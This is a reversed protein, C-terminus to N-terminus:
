GLQLYNLVEALLGGVCVVCVCSCFSRVSIHRQSCLTSSSRDTPITSSLCVFCVLTSSCSSLFWGTECLFLRPTVKLVDHNEESISPGGAAPPWFRPSRLCVRVCSTFWRGRVKKEPLDRCFPKSPITHLSTKGLPGECTMQGNLARSGWQNLPLPKGKKCSELLEITTAPTL